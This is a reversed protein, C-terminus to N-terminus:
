SIYDLIIKRRKIKKNDLLFSPTTFEDENDNDVEYAIPLFVQLIRIRKQSVNLLINVNNSGTATRIKYLRKILPHSYGRKSTKFVM